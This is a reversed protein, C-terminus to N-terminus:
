QIRQDLRKIIRIWGISSDIALNDLWKSLIGLAIGLFFILTTNIIRNKIKLDTEAKRINNLFEKM